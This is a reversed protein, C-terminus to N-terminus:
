VEDSINDERRWRREELGIEERDGSTGEAVEDGLLGDNESDSEAFKGVGDGVPYSLGDGPASQPWCALVLNPGLVSRLNRIM